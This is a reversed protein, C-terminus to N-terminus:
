QDFNFNKMMLNANKNKADQHGNKRRVLLIKEPQAQINREGKIHNEAVVMFVYTAGHIM